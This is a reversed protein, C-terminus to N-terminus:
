QKQKNNIIKSLLKESIGQTGIFCEGYKNGHYDSGGTILLKHKKCINHLYNTQEITHSPHYVEVGSLGCRKLDLIVKELYIKPCCKGLHAIVAMGGSQKIINIVKKYDEKYGSVYACRDKMLYKEFAEKINKVYGKEVMEKAINGRSLSINDKVMLDNIDIKININNLKELIEEVRKKRKEALLDIFKKLEKNNIDIFYALIHIETDNYSSSFEVGPIITIEKFDSKTIYQSAISDHDTISIYKIGKEIAYKVIDEPTLCGDSYCSHIHLDAFKM